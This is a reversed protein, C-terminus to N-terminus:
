TSREKPVYDLTPEHAAHNEITHTGCPQLHAECVHKKCGHCFDEISDCTKDCLGCPVQKSFLRSEDIVITVGGHTIRRAKNGM